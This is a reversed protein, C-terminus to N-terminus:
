GPVAGVRWGTGGGAGVVARGCGARSLHGSCGGGCRHRQDQPPAQALARDVASLVPAQDFAYVPLPRKAKKIRQRVWLAYDDGLVM